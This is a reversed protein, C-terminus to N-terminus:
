PRIRLSHPNNNSNKKKKKSPHCLIYVVLSICSLMALLWYYKDLRGQQMDDAFWGGRGEDDATFVEIFTIFLASVFSSVGFVSTYLAIGM